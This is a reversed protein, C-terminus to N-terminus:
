LGSPELLQFCSPSIAKNFSCAALRDARQHFGLKHLSQIHERLIRKQFSGDNGKWPELDLYQDFIRALAEQATPLPFTRMCAAEPHAECGRANRGEFDRTMCGLCDLGPHQVAILTRGEHLFRQPLALSFFGLVPCNAAQAYHLLGSNNGIFLDCQELVAATARISLKGVLDHGLGLGQRAGVEILTAGRALVQRALAQFHPIPLARYPDSGDSCLAVIPRRLSQIGLEQAIGREQPGLHLMPTRNQPFLGAYSCMHDVLSPLAELAAFARHGIETFLSVPVIRDPRYGPPAEGDIDPSFACNGAHGRWRIEADPGHFDRLGRLMPEACVLDGLGWRGRFDVLVRPPM